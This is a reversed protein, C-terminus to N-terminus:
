ETFYVGLHTSYMRSILYIIFFVCADLPQINRFTIEVFNHQTTAHTEGLIPNTVNDVFM